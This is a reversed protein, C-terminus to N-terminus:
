LAEYIDVVFAFDEKLSARREADWKSVPAKDTERKWWRRLDNLISLYTVHGRDVEADNQQHEERTVLRGASISKRLRQVSMRDDWALTLWRRQEDPDKIKAVLRHHHFDLNPIRIGMEICRAVHSFKKVTEYALGTARMSEVYKEGYRSQGYNIWDDM